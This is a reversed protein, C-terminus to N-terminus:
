AICRSAERIEQHFQNIPWWAPSELWYDIIWCYPHTSPLQILSYRFYDKGWKKRPYHRHYNVARHMINFTLNCQGCWAGTPIWGCLWHHMFYHTLSAAFSSTLPWPRVQQGPWYIRIYYQQADHVYLYKTVIVYRYRNIQYIRTGHSASIMM